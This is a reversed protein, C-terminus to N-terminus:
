MIFIIFLAIVQLSKKEQELELLKKEYHLKLVSTDGSTFRKMEAKFLSILKFHGFSGFCFLICFCAVGMYSSLLFPYQFNYM